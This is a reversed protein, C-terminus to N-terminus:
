VGTRGECNVGVDYIVSGDNEMEGEKQLMKKQGKGGLARGPRDWDNLTFSKGRWWVVGGGGNRFREM